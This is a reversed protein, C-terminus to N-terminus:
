GELFKRADELQSIVVDISEVKNFLMQFEIGLGTVLNGIERDNITHGIVKNEPAPSFAVGVYGDDSEMLSTVRVTGDGMVVSFISEGDEYPITQFGYKM